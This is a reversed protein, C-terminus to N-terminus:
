HLVFYIHSIIPNGDSFSFNAIQGSFNGCEVFDNAQSLYIKNVNKEARVVLVNSLDSGASQLPRRNVSGLLEPALIRITKILLVVFKELDQDVKQFGALIRQDEAHCGEIKAFVNSM